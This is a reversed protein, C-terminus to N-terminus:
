VELPVRKFAHGRDKSPTTSLELPFARARQVWRRPRWLSRIKELIWCSRIKKEEERSLDSTRRTRSRANALPVRPLVPFRGVFRQIFNRFPKSCHNLSHTHGTLKSDRADEPLLAVHGTSELTANPVRRFDLFPSSPFELGLQSDLITWEATPEPAARLQARVRSEDGPRLRGVGGARVGCLRTSVETPSKFTVSTERSLSLSLSLSFTYAIPGFAKSRVKAIERSFGSLTRIVDGRDRSTTDRTGIREDSTM